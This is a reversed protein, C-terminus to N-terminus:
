QDPRHRPATERCRPRQKGVWSTVVAGLGATLVVFRTLGGLLPIAGIIWLVVLGVIM